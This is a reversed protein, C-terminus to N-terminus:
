LADANRGHFGGHLGMALWREGAVRPPYDGLAFEIGIGFTPREESVPEVEGVMGGSPM